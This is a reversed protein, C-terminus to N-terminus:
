CRHRHTRPVIGPQTGRDHASAERRGRVDVRQPAELARDREPHHRARRLAASLRGNPQTELAAVPGQVLEERVLADVHDVVARRIVEVVGHGRGSEVGPLVDQRLLGEREVQVLGLIEHGASTAALEDGAHTEDVSM